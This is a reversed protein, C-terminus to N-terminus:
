SQSASQSAIVRELYGRRRKSDGLSSLAASATPVDPYPDSRLRGGTGLRGWYRLLVIDGFLDRSVEMIYFRWENREPRVRRLEVRLSDSYSVPGLVM